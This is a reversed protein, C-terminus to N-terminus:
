YNILNIVVLKDLLVKISKIPLIIFIDEIHKKLLRRFKLYM